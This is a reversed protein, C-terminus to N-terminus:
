STCVLSTVLFAQGEEESTCAPNIFLLVQGEEESTGVPLTLLFPSTGIRGGGFEGSVLLFAVEFIQPLPRHATGRGGFYGCGDSIIGGSKPPPSGTGGGGTPTVFFACGHPVVNGSLLFFVLIQRAAPCLCIVHLDFTVCLDFLPLTSM